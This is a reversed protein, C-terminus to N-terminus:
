KEKQYGEEVMEDVAKKELDPMVENVATLNFKDTNATFAKLHDHRVDDRDDSLVFVGSYRPILVQKM